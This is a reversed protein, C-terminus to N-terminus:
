AGHVYRHVTGVSCGIKGAIARMALGKARLKVVETRKEDARALYVERPESTWNQIQRTSLGTAEALERATRGKRPLRDAYAIM